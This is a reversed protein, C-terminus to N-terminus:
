KRIVAAAQIKWGSIEFVKAGQSFSVMMAMAEAITINMIGTFRSFPLRISQSVAEFIGQPTSNSNPPPRDSAATIVEEPRAIQIASDMATIPVMGVRTIKSIMVVTIMKRVSTVLLVAVAAAKRGSIPANAIAWSTDGRRYATGAATAALQAKMIGTAVGGFAMTNPVPWMRMESMILAPKLSFRAPTAM